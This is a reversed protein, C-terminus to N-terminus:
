NAAVTVPGLAKNGGKNNGINPLTGGGFDGGSKGRLLHDGNEM